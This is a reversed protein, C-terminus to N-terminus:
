ARRNKFNDWIREITHCLFATVHIITVVVLPIALIPIAHIFFGTMVGGM